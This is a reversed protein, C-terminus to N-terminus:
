LFERYGFRNLCENVRCSLDSRVKINSSPRENNRIEALLLDSMPTKKLELYKIVQDFVALPSNVFDEYRVLYFDESNIDTTALTKETMVTYYYLGKEFDTLSLFYNCEEEQVWFPLYYNNFKRYLNPQYPNSLKDISFWKKEVVDTAVSTAHRILYVIKFNKLAKKYFLYDNCNEAINLIFTSDSSEKAVDLLNKFDYFRRKIEEQNKKKGIYSLDNPRFNVNRMLFVEDFLWKIYTELMKEFLLGHIGAETSIKPIFTIGWPEEAYEVKECSSLITGLLTKGTRCMGSVFCIKFDIQNPYGFIINNM